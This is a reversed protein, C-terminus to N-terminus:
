WLLGSSSVRVVDSGRGVVVNVSGNLLAGVGSSWPVMRKSRVMLDVAGNFM